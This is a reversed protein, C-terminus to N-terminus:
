AANKGNPSKWHTDVYTLWAMAASSYRTIAQAYTRGAHQLTAVDAPGPEQDERTFAQQYQQQAQVLANAADDMARRLDHAHPTDFLRM